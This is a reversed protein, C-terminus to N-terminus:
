PFGRTFLSYCPTIGAEAALDVGLSSPFQAPEGLWSIIAINMSFIHDFPLLQLYM